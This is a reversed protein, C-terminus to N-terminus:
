EFYYRCIQDARCEEETMGQRLHRTESDLVFYGMGQSDEPDGFTNSNAETRRGVIWHERVVLDKKVSPYVLFKGNEDVLARSSGSFRMLEVGNKVVRVENLSGLVFIALSAFCLALMTLITLRTKTM